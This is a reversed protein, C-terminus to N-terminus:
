VSIWSIGPLSPSRATMNQLWSYSLAFMMSGGSVEWSSTTVIEM